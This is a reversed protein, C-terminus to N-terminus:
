RRHHETPTATTAPGPGVAEPPPLAGPGGVASPPPLTRSSQGDVDEYLGSFPMRRRAPGSRGERLADVARELDSIRNIQEEVLHLLDELLDEVPRRAAATAPPEASEEATLDIAALGQQFDPWMREFLAEVTEKDHAPECMSNITLVMALVSEPRHAAVAQFQRLPSAALEEIACDLLLPVVMGDSRDAQKSLAGSEYNLWPAHVNARTVCAIGFSSGGLQEAIRELGRAGMRIDASSVFPVIASNFSRLWRHLLEACQKSPEGSWSLFIKM